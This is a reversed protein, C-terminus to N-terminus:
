KPQEGYIDPRIEYRSIGTVEEFKLVRGPPVKSWSYFSNHKLGLLKALEMLGGVVEAGREVIDICKNKSM